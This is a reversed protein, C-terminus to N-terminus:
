PVESRPADIRMGHATAFAPLPQSSSRRGLALMSGYTTVPMSM